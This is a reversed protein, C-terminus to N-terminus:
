RVANRKAARRDDPVHWRSMKINMVRKDHDLTEVTGSLTVTQTPLQKVQAWGPLSLAVVLASASLIASVGKM